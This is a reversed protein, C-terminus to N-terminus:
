GSDRVDGVSRAALMASALEKALPNIDLDLELLATELEELNQANAIVEKIPDLIPDMQEQWDSLGMEELEEDLTAQQEPNGSDIAANNAGALLAEINELRQNIALTTETPAPAAQAVPAKVEPTLLEDDAEPPNLTAALQKADSRKIEIRIDDHVKAQGLSSGDDTTMTQGLVTKSIQKDCYTALREFVDAAAQGGVAELLEIEMSKHIVAGADSGLSHIAEILTQIDDESAGQGYRGIKIPIGFVEAFALWDKITYNQFLYYWAAPLALGGRIPHGCKLKPIHCIFKYAPLELGQVLDAEDRIRLENKREPHFMFSRPDRREYTPWWKSRSSEWVLEVLAYGKGFADLLNDLMPEFEPGSALREVDEAIALSKADDGGPQVIPEIGTVAVRRMSLVSRYHPYREEMEEALTLYDRTNNTSTAERLIRTLRAPTLGSAIADQWFSRVGLHSPQAIKQKLLEKKIPQNRYDYLMVM